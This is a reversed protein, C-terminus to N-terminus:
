LLISARWCGTPFDLSGDALIDSEIGKFVLFAGGYKKNLGDAETQQQVVEEASLGGAYYASQSHDAVGFYQYGRALTAKAMEELTNVGDSRDTHAHLIGRIDSDAVIEPLTGALARAIEDRGERLEPPIPQMGLAKYIKEETAAAIVKSGRCLGREEITMNRKAAIDRLGALHAKSGTALLLTIGYHAADALHATLQGGPRITKSGGPLKPVEAVLTLDGVLECGRRFDGAPTIRFADPTVEKLSVEASRLLEATRHMHRKGHSERRMELGRLIKTELAAGLGKVKQLQGERAAKELEDLSTIGLENYIKVVKETRLGPITLMDVVGAPIEKRMKELAPHTGTAHLKKIIDAIADGIGPIAQLRDHAIVTELPISLALLNDAARAYAKARFPNGGRLTSRQGFERLLAAVSSANLATM